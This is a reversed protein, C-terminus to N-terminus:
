SLVACSEHMAQWHLFNKLGILELISSLAKSQCSEECIDTRHEKLRVEVSDKFAKAQDFAAQGISGDMVFIVLTPKVSAAVQLCCLARYGDAKPSRLELCPQM